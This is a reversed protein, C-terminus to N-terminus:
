FESGDSGNVLRSADEPICKWAEPGLLEVQKQANQM